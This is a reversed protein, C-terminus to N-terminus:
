NGPGLRSPDLSVNRAIEGYPGLKNAVKGNILIDLAGANGTSLRLGTRNPVEYEDGARMVRTMLPTSNADRVQVWSDSNARIVIRPAAALTGQDSPTSQDGISASTSSAAADQTGAHAQSVGLTTVDPASPIKLVPSIPIPTASTNAATVVPAEETQTSTTQDTTTETEAVSIAPASAVPTSVASPPTAPSSVVTSVPTTLDPATAAAIPAAVSTAVPAPVATAAPAPIQSVTAPSVTASNFTASRIATPTPSESSTAPPTPGAPPISGTTRSALKPQTIPPTVSQVAPVTVSVPTQTPAPNPKALTPTASATVTVPPEAGKDGEILSALRAPVDPVLDALTRDSSSMYYWGAYVIGAVALSALMLVGGPVKGEPAPSPFVLRTRASLGEAESKFQEVMDQSNLGLSQAYTRVYGIAYTLGPLTDLRGDEIASLYDRRIRLDRAVDLLDQGDAIRARRLQEGVSPPQGLEPEQGPLQNAGDETTDRSQNIVPSLLDVSRHTVKSRDDEIDILKLKTKGNM